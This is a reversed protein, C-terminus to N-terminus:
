LYICDGACADLEVGRGARADRGRPKWRRGYGPRASSWSPRHRSRSGPPRRPRPPRCKRRGSPRARSTCATSSASRACATGAIHRRNRASQGCVQGASPRPRPSWPRGGARGPRIPSTIPLEADVAARIVAAKFEVRGSVTIREGYREMALRLAAAVGARDTQSSVALCEGEDRMASGRARYIIQRRRDSTRACSGLRVPWFRRTGIVSIWSTCGWSFASM